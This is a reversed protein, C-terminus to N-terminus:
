LGCANATCNPDKPVPLHSSANDTLGMAVVTSDFSIFDIVRLSNIQSLDIAHEIDGCCMLKFELTVFQISLFVALLYISSNFEFISFM